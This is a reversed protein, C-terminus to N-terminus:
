VILFSILDTFKVIVVFGGRGVIMGLSFTSPLLSWYQLVLNNLVV